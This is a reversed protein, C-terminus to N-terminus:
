RYRAYYGTRQNGARVRGRLPLVFLSISFPLVQKCEAWDVVLEMVRRAAVIVTRFKSAGIIHIAKPFGCEEALFARFLREEIRVTASVPPVTRASTAPVLVLLALLGFVLTSRTINM